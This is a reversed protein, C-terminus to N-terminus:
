YSEIRRRVISAVIMAARYSLHLGDTTAYNNDVEVWPYEHPPFESKMREITIKTAKAQAIDPHVAMRLFIVQVGDARLNTVIGKLIQIDNELQEQEPFDAERAINQEMANKFIDPNDRKNLKEHETKEFVKMCASIIINLPKYEHRFARIKKRLEHLPNSFLNNLFSRDVGRYIYNAEVIVQHPKMNVHQIVMLGTLPGSGQLSMNFIGNGLYFDQLRNTLSSGVIVAQPIEEAYVYRQARIKNQSWQSLGEFVQPKVIEIIACYLMLLLVASALVHAVFRNQKICKFNFIYLRM